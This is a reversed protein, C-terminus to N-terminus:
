YQGAPPRDPKPTPTACGTCHVVARYQWAQSTLQELVAPNQGHHGNSEWVTGGRRSGGSGTSVETCSHQCCWAVGWHMWYPAQGAPSAHCPLPALQTTNMTSRLPCLLQQMKGDNHPVCTRRAVWGTCKKQRSMGGVSAPARPMGAPAKCASHQERAESEPM